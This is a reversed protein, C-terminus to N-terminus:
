GKWEQAWFTYEGLREFLSQILSTALIQLIIVKWRLLSHYTLNEMDYKKHPQLPIKVNIVRLLSLTLVATDPWSPPLPPLPPNFLKATTFKHDLVTKLSLLKVAMKAVQVSTILLTLSSPKTPHYSTNRDRAMTNTHNINHELTSHKKLKTVTGRVAVDRRPGQGGAPRWEWSVTPFFLVCLDSCESWTQKTWPSKSLGGFLQALNDHSSRSFFESVFEQSEAM